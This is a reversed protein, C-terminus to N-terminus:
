KPPFLQNGEYTFMSEPLIYNKGNSDPMLSKILNEFLTPIIRMQEHIKFYECLFEEYSDYASELIIRQSILIPLLQPLDIVTSPVIVLVLRLAKLGEASLKQPKLLYLAIKQLYKQLSTDNITANCDLKTLLIAELISTIHMAESTDDLIIQSLNLAAVSNKVVSPSTEDLHIGLLHITNIILSFCSVSQTLYSKFFNRFFFKLVASGISVDKNELCNTMIFLYFSESNEGKFVKCDPQLTETVIKEYTDFNESAFLVTQIFSDFNQKYNNAAATQNNYLHLYLLISSYLIGDYTKVLNFSELNITKLSESFISLLEISQNSLPSKPVFQIFNKFIELSKENVFCKLSSIKTLASCTHYLLDKLESSTTIGALLFIM